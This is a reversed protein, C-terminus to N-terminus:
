CAEAFQILDRHILLLEVALRGIRRIRVQKVNGVFAALEFIGPDRGLLVHRM